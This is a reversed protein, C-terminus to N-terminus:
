AHDAAKDRDTRPAKTLFWYQRAMQRARMTRFGAVAFVIAIGTDRGYAVIDTLRGEFLAFHIFRVAGGLVFMAGLAQWLPRWTQAVARASLWAAGGGLVISVLIFGANEGLLEMMGRDYRLWNSEGDATDAIDAVIESTAEHAAQFGCRAGPM